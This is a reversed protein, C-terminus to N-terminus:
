TKRQQLYPFHYFCAWCSLTVSCHIVLIPLKTVFVTKLHFMTKIAYILSQWLWVYLTHLPLCLFYILSLSCFLSYFFNKIFYVFVKVYDFASDSTKTKRAGSCQHIKVPYKTRGRPSKYFLFEHAIVTATFLKSQFTKAWKRSSHMLWITQHM